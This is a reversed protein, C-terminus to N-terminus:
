ILSTLTFAMFKCPRVCVCVCVFVRVCPVPRIPVIALQMSSGDVVADTPTADAIALQVSSGDVVADTHMADAIALHM